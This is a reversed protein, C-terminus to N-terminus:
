SQDDKKEDSARFVLRLLLEQMLAREGPTLPSLFRQECEAVVPLMQTRWASGAETLEIAHARRDDAHPQRKVMVSAELEDVVNMVTTRDMAFVQAIDTQRLGPRHWLLNAVAFHRAGLGRADFAAVFEDALRQKSLALLFGLAGKFESPILAQVANRDFTSEAM